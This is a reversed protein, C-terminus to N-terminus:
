SQGPWITNSVEFDFFSGFQFGFPMDSVTSTDQSGVVLVTITLNGQTAAMVLVSVPEQQGGGPPVFNATYAAGSGPVFGIEAGPVVSSIQQLDQFETTSLGSISKQIATQANTGTNGYFLVFNDQSGELDVGNATQGAIAFPPKEYEIKYGFQSNDYVNHGLL